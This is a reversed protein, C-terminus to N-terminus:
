CMCKCLHSCMQCEFSNGRVPHLVSGLQNFLWRRRTLANCFDASCSLCSFAVRLHVHFRQPVSPTTKARLFLHGVCLLFHWFLSGSASSKMHRLLATCAPLLDRSTDRTLEAGGAGEGDRGSDNRRSGALRTPSFRTWVYMSMKKKVLVAKRQLKAKWPCACITLDSFICSRSFMWLVTKTKNQRKTTMKQAWRKKTFSETGSCLFPLCLLVPSAKIKGAPGKVCTWIFTCGSEWQTLPSNRWIANKKHKIWKM